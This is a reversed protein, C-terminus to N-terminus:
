KEYVFNDWDNKKPSPAPGNPPLKSSVQQLALTVLTM